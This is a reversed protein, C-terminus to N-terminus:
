FAHFEQNLRRWNIRYRNDDLFIAAEGFDGPDRPFKSKQVAPKQGGVVVCRSHGANDNTFICIEAASM